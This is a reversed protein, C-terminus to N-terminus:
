LQCCLITFPLIWSPLILRDAARGQLVSASPHWSGNPLAPPTEQDPSSLPRSSTQLCGSEHLQAHQTHWTSKYTVWLESICGFICTSSRKSTFVNPLACQLQKKGKNSPGITHITSQRSWKLDKVRPQLPPKATLQVPQKQLLSSNLGWCRCPSKCGDAVEIEPCGM